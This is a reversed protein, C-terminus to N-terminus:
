ISFFLRLLSNECPFSFHFVWGNFHVSSIFLPNLITNSTYFNFSAMPHFRGSYPGPDHHDQRGLHASQHQITLSHLLTVLEVPSQIVRQDLLPWTVQIFNSLLRNLSTASLVHFLSIYWWFRTDCVNLRTLGFTIFITCSWLGMYGSLGLMDKAIVTSRM